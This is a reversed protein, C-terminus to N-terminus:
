DLNAEYLAYERQPEFRGGEFFLWAPSDEALLALVISEFGAEMVSRLCRYGLARGLHRGRASEKATIGIMFGVVREVSRARLWFRLPGLPFRQTRLAQLARAYDPYGIMFGCLEGTPSWAGLAFRPDLGRAYAAFVERFQALEIRTIGLFDRYSDEVAAHLARVLAPARIDMPEIRYGNELARAHDKELPQTLMRFTAVGAVELSFWKKRVAFGSAAFQAPYYPKNYPEGLFTATEFGRTMLRYGHWIDFQMPGWIRRLGHEARLWDCASGLLEAAVGPEDICEFFGIAGVAAGDRDKLRNNVMASAHGVPRGGATALFHRHANGAQRYFGFAPSFQELLHKRAPPIWNTDGRYLERCLDMYNGALARDFTYTRIAM